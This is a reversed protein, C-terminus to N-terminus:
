LEPSSISGEEPQKSKSSGPVAKVTGDKMPRYSIATGQKGSKARKEPPLNESSLSDFQSSLCHMTCKYNGESEIGSTGTDESSTSVSDTGSYSPNKMDVRKPPPLTRSLNLHVFLM